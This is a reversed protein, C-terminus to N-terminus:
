KHPLETGQYDIREILNELFGKPPPKYMIENCGANFILKKARDTGDATYCLIYSAGIGNSHEYERICKTTDVGDKGPMHYDIFCLGPNQKRYIDLGDEACFATVVEVPIKNLKLLHEVQRKLIKVNVANDDIIMVPGKLVVTDSRFGLDESPANYTDDGKVVDAPIGLFFVTGKDPTSACAIFGNLQICLSVCIFLGLGTGQFSRNSGSSAQTYPAFMNALDTDKIGCGSDRVTVILWRKDAFNPYMKVRRQVEGIDSLMEGDKMTFVFGAYASSLTAWEDMGQQLTNILNFNVEISGEHTFKIANNVINSVVQIIKTRDTVIMIKGNNGDGAKPLVQFSFSLHRSTALTKMCDIADYALAHYSVKDRAFSHPLYKQKAINLIDNLLALMHTGSARATRVIDRIEELNMSDYSQDLIDLCGMVGHFPTRLEHSMRAFFEYNDKAGDIAAMYKKNTDTIALKLQGMMLNHCHECVRDRFASVVNHDQANWARSEQRAKEMFTDFSARPNLIGGIRLKPADPNGAWKVDRSRVARGLMVQTRGERFFLVGCPPCDNESLGMDLLPQRSSNSFIKRNEYASFKKWFKDSPKLSEDGICIGDTDDDDMRDQVNVVIIDCDLIELLSKEGAKRLNESLTIEASLNLLVDGMRIIRSSQNKKEMAEIRVSVMKSITECAIRQHLSPKFSQKYGHFALLGWLEGSVVIAISLSCKVGMNRLYIIHPRAVARMRIQALDMSQDGGAIIPINESEIDHIYRLGNTIYLQRAPLPIDSKPFRMGMYSSKMTGNTIEHIIEGSLDDNFRYVMGRDYHQMVSFVADCATKAISDEAYFEM